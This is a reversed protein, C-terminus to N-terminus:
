EHGGGVPEPWFAWGPISLVLLPPLVLPYLLTLVGLVPLWILGSAVCGLMRFFTVTNRADAKQGAWWATLVMPAFFLYFAAQCLRYAISIKKQHPSITMIEIAHAPLHGARAEGEFRKFANAYSEGKLYAERALAEVRAFSAEDPCNVSVSDLAQTFAEQVRAEEARKHNGPVAKLLLPEGVQIEVRSRFRDPACYFLGLPIIELPENEKLALRIFRGVSKEYPLPHPGWESSGEPFIMLTKGQDLSQLGAVVPNAVENGILGYRVKDKARVVPIGTFMLRLFWQRLLQVSILAVAQPFLHHAVYGDVAGNRHSCLIIRRRGPVHSIDVSAGTVTIRFFLTRMLWSIFRHWSTM